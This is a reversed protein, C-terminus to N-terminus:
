IQHTEKIKVYIKHGSLCFGMKKDLSLSVFIGVWEEWTGSPNKDIIPKLRDM